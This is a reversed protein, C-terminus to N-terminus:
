NSFIRRVIAIVEDPTIMAMCKAVPLAGANLVPYKCTSLNKEDNLDESKVVRSKWCSRTACCDIMGMTHLTHQLPYQTWIAPERGGLLAIYPKEFAACLHQLFTIPGLGGRSHYALRILQRTDTKGRFDLVNSLAPHSHHSEGIQVWQVLGRTRNIVEQYYDVPWLKATFDSKIGANVLMFQRKWGVIEAVQNVWSKEADSLYLLPRNVRLRLGVQLQNELHEVMGGLFPISEADSRNISDYRMDILRADIEELPTIRPNSEFIAPVSTRVDTEYEDPFTLHLSEIAATLTM